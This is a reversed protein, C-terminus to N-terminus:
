PLYLLKRRVSLMRRSRPIFTPASLYIDAHVFLPQDIKLSLRSLKRFIERSPCAYRALHACITWHFSHSTLWKGFQLAQSRPHYLFRRASIQQALYIFSCSRLMKGLVRIWTLSWFILILACKWTSRVIINAFCFLSQIILWPSKQFVTTCSAL